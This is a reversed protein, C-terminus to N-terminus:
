KRRPGMLSREILKRTRVDDAALALLDLVSDCTVEFGCLCMEDDTGEGWTVRKPPRNPNAPNGASNDFTAALRLVTGKPLKVPERYSFYGQWWFDWNKVHVLPVPQGGPPEAWVKMETGLRHMHPQTGVFTVDVPLKYAATRRYNPEGAPIDIDWNELGVGGLVKAPPKKAFYVAFESQDVEPKGSPHYHVQLVVDSNKTWFRGTGEPVFRPEMGPTWWGLGGTPVFGVGVKSGLYGPGPDAADLRKATGSSDLLCIVHHVVKRNGPKFEFGVVMKDEPITVPIAFMQMVDPGGAPVTFPEPMKVVLDPTGLQWGDAFAPAPPLDGADGEPAGAAVWARIVAIERDSLRREDHFRGYGPEAKWPPMTRDAAVAVLTKARAKADRYTLLPFPAVQGPRHCAACQAFLVPAVHRNFTVAEAAGGEFECGIPETKAAAPARGAAVAALADKLDHTGAVARPRNRAAYWDDIRGRYKVDGGPTLVFAEPTHTPKLWAALHGAGDFLVPFSLAYGDAYGAAEARTVTPNSVVGYLAVGKTAALENLTPAYRQCIPCGPDLFVVAVAAAGAPPLERVRGRTDIARALPFEARAAPTLALLLAPLLVHRRM